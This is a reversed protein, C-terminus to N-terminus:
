SDSSSKRAPAKEVMGFLGTMMRLERVSLRGRRAINVMLDQMHKPSNENFFGVRTAVRDVLASCINLQDGTPWESQDASLSRIERNRLAYLTLLVSQALNYSRNEQASPIRVLHQCLQFHETGLGSEESGFVLAITYDSSAPLRAVWDELLLQSVRHRGSDSAFGVVENADSVAARLSEAQQMTEIVPAGWCAVSRAMELNFPAPNVLKLTSVGLNSMARAVAGINRSDKPEVLVVHVKNNSVQVPLDGFTPSPSIFTVNSGTLNNRDVVMARCLSFYAWLEHMKAM